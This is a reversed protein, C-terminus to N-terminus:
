YYAKLEVVENEWCLEEAARRTNTKKQAYDSSQRIQAITDAILKPDHNPFIWGTDYQEIINRIEPLDSALVPIGAKFYDFIKNPLSYLYNMNTAKDLTLGLDAVQTYRMMEAYPKKGVFLVRHNLGLEETRQKLAPVVDGNGVIVWLYSDDLFRMAELMEESGRHMNIGSGQLIILFRDDPLGLDSRKAPPLEIGKEPINRMVLLKRGYEKEYLAAISANVTFVREPQHFFRKEVWRWVAKVLPKHAIEPTGIFYEHSDYVLKKRRIRAALGNALLTDLDNAHFVDARSFLLLFFLRLNYEAYFLAGRRFWLRMRKTAYSRQLPLSDSLQRGVLLVEWGTAQISRCVKDVRNDTSLDNTVSVIVRKSAM